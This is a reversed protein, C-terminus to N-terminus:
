RFLLRLRLVLPVDSITMTTDPRTLTANVEKNSIQHAYLACCGGSGEADRDAIQIDRIHMIDIESCRCSARQGTSDKSEGFSSLHVRANEIQKRGRTQFNVELPSLPFSIPIHYRHHKDDEDHHQLRFQSLAQYAAPLIISPTLLSLHPPHITLHKDSEGSPSGEVPLSRGFVIPYNDILWAIAPHTVSVPISTVTHTTVQMKGVEIRVGSSPGDVQEKARRPTLGSLLRDKVRRVTERYPLAYFTIQLDLVELRPQPHPEHVVITINSCSIHAFAIMKSYEQEDPSYHTDVFSSMSRGLRYKLREAHVAFAYPMDQATDRINLEIDQIGISNFSIFPRPLAEGVLEINHQSLLHRIYIPIYPLVIWNITGITCALLLVGYTLLWRNSTWRLSQSRQAREM